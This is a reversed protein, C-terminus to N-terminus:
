FPLAEQESPSQQTYQQQPPYVAMQPTAQQPQQYAQQQYTQPQASGNYPQQAPQQMTQVVSPEIRYCSPRVSFEWKSPDQRSQWKSGQLRFSIIVKDGQKFRQRIDGDRLNIFDLMLLNEYKEGTEQDYRSADLYVSQKVFQNGSKSAMTLPATISLINGTVQNAM